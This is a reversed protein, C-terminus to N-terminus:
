VGTHIISLEEGLADNYQRCMLCLGVCLEGHMSNIPVFM